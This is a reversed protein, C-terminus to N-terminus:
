SERCANVFAESTATYGVCTEIYRIAMFNAWGGERTEEYESTGCGDRLVIVRYGRYMADTVTTGLCIRSDFGVVVLDTADLSKLLSELHTEFFGSYMQKRIVPDGPEPAIVKSFALIDNPEKWAELVDIGCTRISMNRWETRANTSPALYNTLYVVPMGARRAADRAPRIHNVVIDRNREVAKTYFEPAEGPQGDPDYGRGYVDVILFVTRKPDLSLPEECYGLPRGAPYTRYYRGSLTITPM